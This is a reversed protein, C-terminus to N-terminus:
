RPEGPRSAAARFISAPEADAPLELRRLAAIAAASVAPAAKPRPPVASASPRAAGAGAAAGACGALAAPALALARLVSRRTPDGPGAPDDRM